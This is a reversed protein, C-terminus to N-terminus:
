IARYPSKKGSAPASRSLFALLARAQQVRQQPDKLNRIHFLMMQRIGSRVYWGPYTNYSVYAIGNESLREGCIALIRDQVEPPVWSYVGHCIIYDFPGPDDFDLISQARLEINKLGLAEVTKQGDAVQR